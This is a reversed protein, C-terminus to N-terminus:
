TNLISAKIWFIILNCDITFHNFEFAVIQSFILVIVTLLQIM